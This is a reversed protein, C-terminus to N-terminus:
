IQAALPMVGQLFCQDGDLSQSKIGVMELAQSYRQALFPNAVIAVPDESQSIQFLRLMSAVEAGILLGSLCEGALHAPIQGLIRGARVEFLHAMVNNEHLGRELAQTFITPDQEQQPTGLGVLSYQMLISHLEGTMATRFTEVTSGNIAVWKCHTGPMICLKYKGQGQQIVGALQTEEGRMVNCNDAAKVCLGPIVHISLNRQNPVPCLKSALAGLDTPCPLYPADIWGNVSGVMGAMVTKMPGYEELWPGCLREFVGECDAGHFVTVGEHSKKVEQVQENTCLFARINTSGWDLVIFRQESM